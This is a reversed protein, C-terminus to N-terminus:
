LGFTPIKLKLYISNSERSFKELVYYVKLAWIKGWHMINEKLTRLEIVVYM